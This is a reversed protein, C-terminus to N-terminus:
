VKMRYAALDGEHKTLISIKEAQIETWVRQYVEPSILIESGKAGDSYRAALNVAEGIVTFEMRDPSGIFGHLVEGSHVGIGLECTLQGRTKRADSVRQMIQQMEAAARVAKQHHKPDAEPSGFVALISDGVFKDVTGDYRFICDVLATFYENLMAVVDDACMNATLRTFGRIDSCLITVVSHEGGLTLRGLQARQLLRTRVKPSFNTLLRELIDSNQKLSSQLERNAIALALQHAFCTVLELDDCMFIQGRITSDLCVVGFSQGNVVLPVYIGTELNSERQSTTLDDGRKWILGKKDEIARRVSTMSVRPIWTQPSFAKLLLNKDVRDRVLIVDHEAKPVIRLLEEAAKELLLDMEGETGFEWAFESLWTVRDTGTVSASKIATSADLTESIQLPQQGPESDDDLDTFSTIASTLVRPPADLATQLNLLMGSLGDGASALVNSLDADQSELLARLLCLLDVEERNCIRSLDSARTFLQRTASSRTAVQRDSPGSGHTDKLSISGRIRRRIVGLDVSHQAALESLQESEAKLSSLQTPTVVSGPSESSVVKEISCIGYLLHKPEILTGGMRLALDGAIQWVLQVAASISAEAM